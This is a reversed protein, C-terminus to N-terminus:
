TGDTHAKQRQAKQIEAHMRDKAKRYKRFLFIEVAAYLATVIALVIWFPDM